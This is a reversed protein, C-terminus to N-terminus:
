DAGCHKQEALVALYQQRSQLAAIEKSATGQFDMGFWLVPIFVGAIGMAVNQAVKGGQDGGLDAIQANNAQAEVLIAQCDAQRDQPQLLAVPQPPRGACDCLLLLALGCLALIVLPGALGVRNM